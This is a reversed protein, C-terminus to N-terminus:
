LRGVALDLGSRAVFLDRRAAVERTRARTLANEAELLEVLPSLGEQYRDEIMRLSERALQVAKRTEVLRQQATSYGTSARLVELAIEEELLDRTLELQRHGERAQAVRARTDGGDYISIRFTAMVTWNTGSAGIFNENNAEFAGLV